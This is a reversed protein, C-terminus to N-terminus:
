VNEGNLFIKRQGPTMRAILETALESLQQPKLQDVAKVVPRRDDNDPADADVWHGPNSLWNPDTDIPFQYKLTPEEVLRLGLDYLRKSVFQLYDIPMALQGGEQYPMAVLCWLFMQYPNNPDCKERTPFGVFKKFDDPIAKAVRPM